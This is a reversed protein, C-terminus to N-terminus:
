RGKQSFTQKKLGFFQIATSKQNFLSSQNSLTPWPVAFNVVYQTFVHLAIYNCLGFNKQVQIQIKHDLSKGFIGM